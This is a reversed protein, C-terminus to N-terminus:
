LALALLLLPSLAALVLGTAVASSGLILWFLRATVAV